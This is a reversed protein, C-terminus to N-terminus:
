ARRLYCSHPHPATSRSGFLAMERLSDGKEIVTERVDARAVREAFAISATIAAHTIHSEGHRQAVPAYM